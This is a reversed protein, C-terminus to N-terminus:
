AGHEEEEKEQDVPKLWAAIGALAVTLIITRTGSSLSSIFPLRESLFSTLFSLIVLILVTRDKKAPPIFIAIFMGYLAVSLASVIGVPLIEGVIIGASTGACWPLISVLMAGYFYAPELWSDRAIAIGFLEDTVAYGIVFRHIMKTDLRIKQSLSCSMLMYRANAIFTMAAMVLYSGGSSIVQTAAYEGASAVNLMSMFWGDIWSLGANKMAIGLAFSVAFYGVGIPIGDRMGEVFVNSRTKDKQMAMTTM